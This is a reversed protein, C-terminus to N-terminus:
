RLLRVLTQHYWAQTGNTPQRQTVSPSPVIHIQKDEDLYKTWREDTSLVYGKVSGGGVTIKEKPLWIGALSFPAIIIAILAAGGILAGLLNIVKRPRGKFIKINGVWGVVSMFTIIM